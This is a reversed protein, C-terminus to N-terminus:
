FVMFAGLPSNLFHALEKLFKLCENRFPIDKVQGDGHDDASSKRLDDVTEHLVDDIRDEADDDPARVERVEEDNQLISGRAIRTRM